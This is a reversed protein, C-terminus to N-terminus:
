RRGYQIDWQQKRGFAIKPSVNKNNSRKGYLADLFAKNPMKNYGRKGFGIDWRAAQQRRFDKNRQDPSEKKSLYTRSRKQLSPLVEENQEDSESNLYDEDEDELGGLRNSSHYNNEPIHDIKALSNLYNNLLYASVGIKDSRQHETEASNFDKKKIKLKFFYIISSKRSYGGLSCSIWPYILM